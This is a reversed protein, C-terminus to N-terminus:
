EARRERAELMALEISTRQDLPPAPSPLNPKTHQSRKLAKKKVAKPKDVQPPATPSKQPRKQANQKATKPKSERSSEQEKRRFGLMNNAKTDKRNPAYKQKVSIEPALQHLESEFVFARITKAEIAEASGTLTSVFWVGQEMSLFFPAGESLQGDKVFFTKREGDLWGELKQISKDTLVPKVIECLFPKWGDKSVDPPLQMSRDQSDFSIRRVVSDRQMISTCPHRPWPPGLEDFFVRGGFPSEYFFVEAACVPCHANPYTAGILVQRYSKFTVNSRLADNFNGGRGLHGIGGWGCKCDPSHNWANCM